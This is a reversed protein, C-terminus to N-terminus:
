RAFGLPRFNGSSLRFVVSLSPLVLFKRDRLYTASGLHKSARVLTGTSDLDSLLTMILIAIGTYLHVLGPLLLSPMITVM